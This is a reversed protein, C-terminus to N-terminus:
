IDLSAYAKDGNKLEVRKLRDLCEIYITYTRRREESEILEQLPDESTHEFYNKSEKSGNTKSKLIYHTSHQSNDTYRIFLADPNYRSIYDIGIILTHLSQFYTLEFITKENFTRFPHSIEFSLVELRPFYDSIDKLVDQPYEYGELTIHVM